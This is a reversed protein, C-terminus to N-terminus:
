DCLRWNAALLARTAHTTVHRWATFCMAFEARSGFRSYDDFRGPLLRAIHLRRLRAVPLSASASRHVATLYMRGRAGPGFSEPDAALEFEVYETAQDVGPALRIITPGPAPMRGLAHGTVLRVFLRQVAPWTVQPDEYIAHVVPDASRAQGLEHARRREFEAFRWECERVDAESGRELVKSLRQAAVTLETLHRTAADLFLAHVDGHDRFRRQVREAIDASHWEYEGPNSHEIKAPASSLLVERAFERKYSQFDRWEQVNSRSKMWDRDVLCSIFGAQELSVDIDALRDALLLLADAGIM